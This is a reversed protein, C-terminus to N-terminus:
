TRRHTKGGTPGSRQQTPQQGARVTRVAWAGSGRLGGLGEGRGGRGATVLKIALPEVQSDADVYM